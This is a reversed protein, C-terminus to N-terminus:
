TTMWGPFFSSPCVPQPSVSHLLKTILLSPADVATPLVTMSTHTTSLPAAACCGLRPAVQGDGRVQARHAAAAPPLLAGAGAGRGRVAGGAATPQNATLALQLM